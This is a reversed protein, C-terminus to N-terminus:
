MMRANVGSILDAESATANAPMEFPALGLRRRGGLTTVDDPTARGKCKSEGDGSPFDPPPLGLQFTAAQNRLYSFNQNTLPVAPVYIASSDENGDHEIEVSHVLDGHWYAQDGPDVSPISVLAKDLRLHPHTMESMGQGKGMECGPFKNSWDVEWDEAAFSVQGNRPVFKPRFFPRLM